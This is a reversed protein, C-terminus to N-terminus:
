FPIEESRVIAEAVKLQGDILEVKFTYSTHEFLSASFRNFAEKSMGAAKYAKKLDANTSWSDRKEKFYLYLKCSEPEADVSMSVKVGEDDRDDFYVFKSRMDQFYSEFSKVIADSDPILYRQLNERAGDKQEYLDILAQRFESNFQNEYTESFYPATKGTPAQKYVKKFGISGLTQYLNADSVEKGHRTGWGAAQIESLYWSGTKGGAKTREFVANISASSGEYNASVVSEDYDGFKITNGYIIYTRTIRDFDSYNMERFDQAEPDKEIKEITTFPAIADPMERRYTLLNGEYKEMGAILLAHLEQDIKGGEVKYPNGIYWWYFEWDNTLVGHKLRSYEVVLPLTYKVGEKSAPTTITFVTYCRDDPWRYNIDRAADSQYSSFDSVIVDGGGITMKKEIKVSRPNEIQYDSKLKEYVRDNSIVKNFAADVSPFPPVSQAFLNLVFFLSLVSTSILKKM